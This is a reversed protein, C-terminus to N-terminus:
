GLRTLTIDKIDLLKKCEPLLAGNYYLKTMSTNLLAKTCRFCPALTIIVTDIQTIDVCQGIASIEAHVSICDDPFSHKDAGLCPKDTCHPLGLPPSNYGTALIKGASSMLICGVEGRVCSSRSGIVKAIQMGWLYLSKQKTNM